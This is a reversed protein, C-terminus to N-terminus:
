VSPVPYVFSMGLDYVCLYLCVSLSSKLLCVCLVCVVIVMCICLCVFQFVRKCCVCDFLDHVLSVCGTVCADCVFPASMCVM